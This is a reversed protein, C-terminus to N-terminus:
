WLYPVSSLSFFHPKEAGMGTFENSFRHQGSCAKEGEM